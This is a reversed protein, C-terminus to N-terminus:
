NKAKKSSTSFFVSYLKQGFKHILKFILFIPMIELLKKNLKLLPIVTKFKGVTKWFKQSKEEPFYKKKVNSLIM